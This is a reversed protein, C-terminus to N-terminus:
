QLASTLRMVNDVYRHYWPRALWAARDLETCVARYGHEINKLDQVLTGGLGMLMIEYDLAFSRMDMNSSGILGIEDDITLHKAHLVTPAPYLHIRVGAELLAAYYSHQAHQVMFQDAKESAFLEVRVGRYAATTIAALLSEDPVFYPSTITVSQQARHVLAVFLRLNPETPYGPGSPVLQFASREHDLPPEHDPHAHAEPNLMEGTETYWDTAFVVGLADVVPGSLEVNLDQWHRGARRNASKLYTSDIMNQSGLFGVLGDVVLLKRHNRLDPRRWRRKRLSIPMMPYWEIGAATLRQRFQSYGPYGSSGLQDYLLRVKVGRGVSRALANFFVDTTEDWAMIYIEVHVFREAADVAAAMAAISERYDAHLGEHHGSLFPIGTLTRNMGIVSALGDPVEIGDPVTPYSATGETIARNAEGQIRHRRGRVYPSGLLLFLPLGLIPVFLILLLWASSSGPRRNEPVTGVAAVKIVYEVVLILAAVVESLSM